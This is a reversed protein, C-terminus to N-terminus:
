LISSNALHVHLCELDYCTYDKYFSKTFVKVLIPLSACNNSFTSENKYSM